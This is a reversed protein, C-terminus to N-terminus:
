GDECLEAGFSRGREMEELGLWERIRRRYRSDKLTGNRYRGLAQICDNCKRSEGLHRVIPMGCIECQENGYMVRRVTIWEGKVRVRYTLEWEGPEVLEWDGPRPVGRPTFVVM